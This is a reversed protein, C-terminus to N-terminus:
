KQFRVRRKFPDGSQAKPGKVSLYQRWRKGGPLGQFLGLMHEVM